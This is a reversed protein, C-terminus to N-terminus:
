GTIPKGKGDTVLPLPPIPVVRLGKKATTPTPAAGGSPGGSVQTPQSPSKPQLHPALPEILTTKKVALGTKKDVDISLNVEPLRSPQVIKASGHPNKDIPGSATHKRTISDLKGKQYQANALDM